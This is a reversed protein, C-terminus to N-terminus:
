NLLQIHTMGDDHYEDGWCCCSTTWVRKSWIRELVKRQLKEDTENKIDTLWDIVRKRPTNKNRQNAPERESSTTPHISKPIMRQNNSNSNNLSTPVMCWLRFFAISRFMSNFLLHHEMISSNHSIHSAALTNRGSFTITLYITFCGTFSCWIATCM